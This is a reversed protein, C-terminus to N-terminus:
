DWDGFDGGTEVEEESSTMLIDATEMLIMELEPEEYYKKKKM